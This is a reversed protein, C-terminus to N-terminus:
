ILGIICEGLNHLCEWGELMRVGISQNCSRCTCIQSIRISASEYEAIATSLPVESYSEIADRLESLEAFTNLTFNVFGRGYSEFSYGTWNRYIQDTIGDGLLEILSRDSQAVATFVRAASGIMIGFNTRAQLLAKGRHGFTRKLAQDWPVRGTRLEHPTHTVLDRIVYTTKSVQIDKSEEGNFIVRIHVPRGEAVTRLLVGRDGDQLEVDLGFFFHAFAALWGCFCGGALTISTITGKSLKGIANMALAIDVPEGVFPLYTDGLYTDCLRMYQDAICEFNTSVLVGSCCKLMDHWQQLSPRLYQPAGNIAILETM